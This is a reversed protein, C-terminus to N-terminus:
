VRRPHARHRRRAAAAASLVVLAGLTVPGPVGGAGPTTSCSGFQGSGNWIERDADEAHSGHYDYIGTVSGVDVCEDTVGTGEVELHLDVDFTTPTTASPLIDLEGDFVVHTPATATPCDSPSDM